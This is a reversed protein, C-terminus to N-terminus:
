RGSAAAKAQEHLAQAATSEALETDFAQKARQFEEPSHAQQLTNAAAMAEAKEKGAVAGAREVELQGKLLVASSHHDSAQRALSHAETSTVEASSCLAHTLTSDEAVCQQQMATQIRQAANANATANAQHIARVHVNAAAQRLLAECQQAADPDACASSAGPHLSAFAAAAIAADLSPPATASPLTTIWAIVPVAVLAIIIQTTTRKRDQKGSRSGRSHSGSRHSGPM